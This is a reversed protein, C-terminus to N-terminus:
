PISLRGNNKEVLLQDNCFVFWLRKETETNIDM